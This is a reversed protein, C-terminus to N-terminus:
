RLIVPVSNGTLADIIEDVQESKEVGTKCWIAFHECNNLILNYEDEGIKSRARAVTEEPSYLKSDFDRFFKYLERLLAVGGIYSVNSISHTVPLFGSETNTRVGNENFNCVYCDTDGDMFTEFSTEAIKEAAHYYHIVNGNGSYIGFHRYFGRDAFIVDGYEIKRM